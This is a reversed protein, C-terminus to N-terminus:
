VIKIQHKGAIKYKKLLKIKAATKEVDNAVDWSVIMFMRNDATLGVIAPDWNMRLEFKREVHEIHYDPWLIKFGTFIESKKAELLKLKAGRPIPINTNEIADTKVEVRLLNLNFNLRWLHNRLDRGALIFGLFYAVIGALATLAILPVLPGGKGQDLKILHVFLLTIGFGATLFLLNLRFNLWIERVYEKLNYAWCMRRLKGIQFLKEVIAHSVEMYDRSSTLVDIDHQLARLSDHNVQKKLGLEADLVADERIAEIQPDVKDAQLPHRRLDIPIAPLQKTETAVIEADEVAQEFDKLTERDIM